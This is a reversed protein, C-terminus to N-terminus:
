DELQSDWYIKDVFRQWSARLRMPSRLLLPRPRRKPRNPVVLLKMGAEEPTRGGKKMNCPICSTAVNSWDTKGGRSRPIIHELNLNKTGFRKGCYCCRYGYHEYISRRSFTAETEPLKDYLRLAIVEPVALKFTPTHLFGASNETMAESLAKWDAFDYTVYDQDVVFAHDLYLLGIARQWNTIQVALFSRNLVLVDTAM